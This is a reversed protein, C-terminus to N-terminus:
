NLCCIGLYPGGYRIANAVAKRVLNSFISKSEVAGEKPVSPSFTISQQTVSYQSVSPTAPAAFSSVPAALAGISVSLSLVSAVFTKKM